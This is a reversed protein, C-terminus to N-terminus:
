HESQYFSKFNEKRWAQPSHVVFSPKSGNMIQFSSVRGSISLVEGSVSDYYKLDTPGLRYAIGGEGVAFDFLGKGLNFKEDREHDYFIVEGWHQFGIKKECARWGGHFDGLIREELSKFNRVMLGGFKMSYVMLHSTLTLEALDSSVYIFQKKALDFVETSGWPGGIILFNDVLKVEGSIGELIEPRPFRPNAMWIRFDSDVYVLYNKTVQFSNIKQVIERERGSTISYSKLRNESDLYFLNSGSLAYKKTNSSILRLKGSDTDAGFLRGMQDEFAVSRDSFQYSKINRGLYIEQQNKLDYVYFSGKRDFYIITQESVDFSTVRWRLWRKSNEGTDHIRLWDLPGWRYVLVDAASTAIVLVM